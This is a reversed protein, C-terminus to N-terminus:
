NAEDYELCKKVTEENSMEERKTFYKLEDMSRIFHFKRFSPFPHKEKLERGSYSADCLYNNVSVVWFKKFKETKVPKFKGLFMYGEFGDGKIWSRVWYWKIWEYEEKTWHGKNTPVQTFDLTMIKYEAGVVLGVTGKLVIGSMGLDEDQSDNDICIIKDGISPKIYKFDKEM